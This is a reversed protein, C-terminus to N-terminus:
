GAPLRRLVVHDEHSGRHAGWHLVAPDAVAMPKGASAVPDLPITGAHLIGPASSQSESAGPIGPHNPTQRHGEGFILVGWSPVHGFNLSAISEIEIENQFKQKLTM